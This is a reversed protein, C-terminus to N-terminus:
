PKVAPMVAAGASAGPGVGGPAPGSVAPASTTLQIFHAKDAAFRARIADMEKNKRGIMGQLETIHRANDKYEAALPGSVPIKGGAQKVLAAQKELLPALRSKTGNIILKTQELNRDRALDIEAPSTYTNLLATDHRKQETQSQQEAAQHAQESAEAARQEATPAAAKQKVILGHKDLEINAYGAAQAPLSNSYHIEGQADKWKYIDAHADSCVSLVLLIGWLRRDHIKM